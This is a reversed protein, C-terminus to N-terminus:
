HVSLTCSPVVYGADFPYLLIDELVQVVVQTEVPERIYGSKRMIMPMPNITGNCAFRRRLGYLAQPKVTSGALENATRVRDLGDGCSGAIATDLGKGPCEARSIALRRCRVAFPGLEGM